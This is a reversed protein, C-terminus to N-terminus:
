RMNKGFLAEKPGFPANIKNYELNTYENCDFKEMFKMPRKKNM